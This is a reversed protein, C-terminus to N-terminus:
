PRAAELALLFVSASMAGCAGVQDGERSVRVRVQRVGRLGVGAARYATQRGHVVSKLKGLVAFEAFDADM